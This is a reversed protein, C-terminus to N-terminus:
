FDLAHVSTKGSWQVVFAVTFSFYERPSSCRDGMLRGSLPIKHDPSHGVELGVCRGAQKIEVM